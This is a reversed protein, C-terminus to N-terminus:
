RLNNEDLIKVAKKMDSDSPEKGGSSAAYWHRAKIMLIQSQEPNNKGELLALRAYAFSLDRQQSRDSHMRELEELFNAYSQLASKAHEADAHKYQISSFYGFTRPAVWQNGADVFMEIQQTTSRFFYIAGASFGILIALLYTIKATPTM